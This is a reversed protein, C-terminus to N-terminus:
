KCLIICLLINNVSYIVMWVKHEVILDGSGDM